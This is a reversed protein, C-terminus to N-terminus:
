TGFFLVYAPDNGGTVLFSAMDNAAGFGKQWSGIEGFRGGNMGGIVKGILVGSNLIELVYFHAFDFVNAYKKQVGKRLAFSKEKRSNKNIVFCSM